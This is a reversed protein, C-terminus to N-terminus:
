HLGAAGRWRRRVCGVFGVPLTSLTIFGGLLVLLVDNELQDTGNRMQFASQPKMLLFFSSAAAGLTIATLLILGGGSCCM